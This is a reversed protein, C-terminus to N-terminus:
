PDSTNHSPQKEFISVTTRGYAKTHFCDPHDEFNHRKDHELIFWGEPTLWGEELITRLMQEMLPYDYPPDCFILDFPTPVTQLYEEVPKQLVSARSEVDFSRALARIQKAHANNAEVFKVHDVGRSIAEFGLNGSGAFLDLARCGDFYRRAHIINFIAEKTRDATPRLEGTEPVPITRGKLTGTIIRM